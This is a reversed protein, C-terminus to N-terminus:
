HVMFVITRTESVPSTADASARLEFKVTTSGAAKSTVKVVHHIKGDPMAADTSEGTEVVAPDAVTATWVSGAVSALHVSEVKGPVTHFTFGDATEVTAADDIADATKMAGDMSSMDHGAMADPTATEAPKAADGGAPASPSCAALGLTSVAALIILRM